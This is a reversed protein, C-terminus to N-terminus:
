IRSKKFDFIDNLIKIKIKFILKNLHLSNSINTDVARESLTPM